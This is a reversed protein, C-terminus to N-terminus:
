KGSSGAATTTSGQYLRNLVARALWRPLLRKGTLEASRWLTRRLYTLNIFPWFKRRSLMIKLMPISFLSLAGSDRVRTRVDAFDPSNLLELLKWLVERQEEKKRGTYFSKPIINVLSLPEPLYCLGFRFASIFCAFWDAHWRLALQFRGVNDLADRRYIVSSSSIMLKGRKGLRVLEEPGLYAPHEALGFAMLWSLGSDVYKWESATSCLGAEPYKALLTMSKEFFGPMVEDDVGGTFVYDGRALELGKNLTPMCGLNKENQVLRIFPNEAAIRRIIEVSNDTSADDLIILETITASQSLVAKFFNPLYHAHNYNPVIVSLTPLTM